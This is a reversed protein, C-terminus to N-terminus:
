EQQRQSRNIASGARKFNFLEKSNGLYAIGGKGLFGSLSLSCINEIQLLM